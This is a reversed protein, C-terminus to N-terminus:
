VVRPEREGGEDNGDRGAEDAAQSEADAPAPEADMEQRLRELEQQIEAAETTDVATFGVRDRVRAVFARLGEVARALVPLAVGPLPPERQQLALLTQELSKSTAAILPFGGTRHIGCLTHSGGGGAASRVAPAGRDRPQ